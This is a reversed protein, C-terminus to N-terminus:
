APRRCITFVFRAGGSGSPEVSVDGGTATVLKKVTALGIGTGSAGNTGLNEFLDFIKEEEGEAIGPGNDAVSVEFYQATEDCEITVRCTKKDNYKVANGVLNDLIQELATQHHTVLPMAEDFTVVVHDDLAYREAVVSCIEGLDVEGMQVHAIGVKSYELIGNLLREMHANSAKLMSLHKTVEENPHGELKEALIHALFGSVFMPSRIDHAAVYVFRELDENIDVLRSRQIVSSELEESLMNLGAAVADIADGKSSIQLRKSFDLRAVRELMALIADLREDSERETM